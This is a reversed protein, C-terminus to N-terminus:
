LLRIDEERSSSALARAACSSCPTPSLRLPLPSSSSSPSLALNNSSNLHCCCRRTSSEAAAAALPKCVCSHEDVVKGFHEGHESQSPSCRCFLRAPRAADNSLRERRTRDSKKQTDPVRGFAAFFVNRNSAKECSLKEGGGGGSRLLLADKTMMTKTHEREEKRKLVREELQQVITTRARM